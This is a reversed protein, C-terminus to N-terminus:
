DFAWTYLVDFANNAGTQFQLTIRQNLKYRLKVLSSATGTGQEFNLYARQSLRKGVTVVTSELGKAQTLGLEDVGISKALRKQLSDGSSGGFLAGAATTLLGKEDSASGATGHGLVLWALKESDPVAPTSVLKAVPALATGSVEVGAQVNTESPTSSEPLPRMARIDIGPNDYAGSFNVLGREITLHQGYADYTGSVVRISGALRPARREAVRIHVSGALQADLGKGKLHFDDGLDAEVNINLPLAASQGAATSTAVAAAVTTAGHTVVGAKGLVVVDDGLTPTDQTAMEILSRGAKFKGDLQFHKQDRLLSSQGSVVLTRDPRSLLLLKDLVLKLQMSTDANAFRVAGDLRAQGEIGDFSCRQILLQDGSLSAQLQGNKLKIGQEAWSVALHEGTIAGNLVPADISGSGKLALKLAGDFELGPQGLLTALPALSAMNVSANLSLPSDQGIRGHQMQASADLRATGSRVGDLALKLHLTNGQVEAQAELQRLGLQLSGLTVDGSTRAVQLSGEIVPDLGALAQVKLAWAASLSLDGKISNNGTAAPTLYLLPLGSAQGSSRWLPGNKELNQLRVSGSPLMLVANALAIQQPHLLGAVGSGAPGAIRLPVPAQLTFAYRGRNQLALLTGRWTSGNWTGEIRTSLDIGDVGESRVSLDLKHAAQAGSAHLRASSLNLKPASYGSVDIDLAAEAAQQTKFGGRLDPYALNASAHLTKIQQQAPLRLGSGDVTLSLSPLALSGGVFGSGRLAGGFQPGVAALLPADIKWELRDAVAGFSGHAQMSNPGLRLETDLQDLHILNSRAQAALQVQGSLATGSLSSAQLALALNLRWDRGLRANGSFSTNINGDPYPGFAAPNVNQALGSAKIDFIHEGIKGDTQGAPAVEGRASLLSLPRHPLAALATKSVPDPTLALGSAKVEFSSHPAQMTGTLVGNASVAGSVNSRLAALQSADLRWLLQEGPAGFAGRLNLANQGLALRADVSSVHQANASLTAGGSLAQNAFRSPQLTMGATVQWDPALRGSAEIAANLDAVPFAGFAAPDFHRVSASAKFSNADNLGAQGSLSISGKGAQLRAQQVQLLAKSLTAHLDLRLGDQALTASLTQIPAPKVTKNNVESSLETSVKIDGAIRTANMKSHLAKLDFRETHLSLTATEPAADPASRLMSGSGRWQGAGAMDIQLAQFTTNALTGRIKGGMALFPLRQQDLPGPTGQNSISLAGTLAPDKAGHNNVNGALDLGLDLRLDAKPWATDFRSPDIGHGEIHITRLPIPDFPALTMVATGSAAQAQGSADVYLMSLNGHLHLQLSAPKTGTVSGADPSQTLTAQGDLAFPRQAQVRADIRAQGAATLARADQLRWNNDDFVLQFHLQEITNSASASHLNLREIRADAITLQFPLTLTEPLLLPESSSLLTDVRINKVHLQNIEIGQSFFQLPSWKIDIDDLTIVRELSAYRVHGLHMTGALSGSVGEIAISGKSAQVVKQLVTQLTAERGLYYWGAGLLLGAISCVSLVRRIWCQFRVERRGPQAAASTNTDPTM